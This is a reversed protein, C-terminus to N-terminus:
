VHRKRDRIIGDTMALDLTANWESLLVSRVLGSVEVWQGDDAGTLLHSLSVHPAEAPLHTVGIARIGSGEIMPAYDGAGSVGVVDVLTGARLPLVPGKPLAVFIGGTADAAFLAVHRVDINPDYYLVVIQVHVPYGRAAEEATLGHVAHATTLTPLAPPAPQWAFGEGIALVLWAACRAWQCGFRRSGPIDTGRREEPNCRAQGPLACKAKVYVM